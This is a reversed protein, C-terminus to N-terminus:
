PNEKARKELIKFEVRRNKQRGADSDNDAIPVDQGYGKAALRKPDIGRTVLAKDVADARKQSLGQNFEPTGRTDTHGQVELRLIEPHEALVAAVQDLLSDSAKKITAKGTDFQVQELIVIEKETVRVAKPCGNKTPDPDPVGKENPCADKDDRIGDGDTDPPCGNTAPDSTRVGKIDPCADEVDPIGDEDRDAPKPCGNKKPDPDAVGPEDPCADDKDLIGDGDRDKPKPCGNKKPDPDSVGPDDPCADDADIIGDHDRDPPPPCGNKQPDSSKPGPVDPCADDPDYVGDRDRDPKQEPSYAVMAIARLDPTGIGTTLGPGVGVGIEFDDVIRYRVDGLLEANTTHKVVDNVTIGGYSEAGLQLHRNDLLLVGFGAGWTFMTGQDLGAYSASGQIDPGAAATWIFRDVRGGVILQPLGRAQGTGVFSHSPGTPVWVYGGIAIQFPDFYEGYLRVRLGLRLDGVQVNSPSNFVQGVNPSDGAQYVALPADININLRSFLSLSGNLHLFLQSGVVSGLSQDGSPSRLVLPNHAYDGLLMLHPTLDGAAYPSPVGFMRDGAPAPNLRDLALGASQASASGEVTGMFAAVSACLFM